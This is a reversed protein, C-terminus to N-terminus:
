ALEWDFTIFAVEQFNFYMCSKYKDGSHTTLISYVTGFHFNDRVHNTSANRGQQILYTYTGVNQMPINYTGPSYLALPGATFIFDRAWYTFSRKRSKQLAKNRARYNDANHM